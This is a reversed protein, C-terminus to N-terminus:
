VLREGKVTLGWANHNNSYKKKILYGQEYLKHLENTLQVRNVIVDQHLIHYLLVTTAVYNAKSESLAEGILKILAKHGNIRLTKDNYKHKM